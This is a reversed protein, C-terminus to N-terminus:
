VQALMSGVKGAIAAVLDPQELLAYAFTQFGMLFTLNEFVGGPLLVAIKMGDPLHRAAAELQQFASPKM